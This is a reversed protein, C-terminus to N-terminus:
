KGVQKLIQPVLAQRATFYLAELQSRTIASIPAYGDADGASILQVRYGAPRAAPIFRSGMAKPASLWNGRADIVSHLVVSHQHNKNLRLEIARSDQDGLDLLLQGISDVQWGNDIYCVRVDHFGDLPYDVAVVAEIGDRLYHWSHSHLGITQLMSLNGTMSNIRHWGALNEPMVLDLEQDVNFAVGSRGTRNLHWGFCALGVVALLVSAYKFGFVPRGPLSTTPPVPQKVKRVVHSRSLFFFAMLQDLSLVLGFYGLLLVLGFIEHPLGSLLDLDWFYYASACTTIRFINGLIVFMSTAPLSILLWAMPRRRWLLWFLCFANCLVFSNIGSCAEEMFLEKGPLQITNGDQVLTVRLWDLLKCSYDTAFVRLSLTLKEDLGLPPPLIALLILGGPTLAKLLTKGGMSWFVASLGLLLSMFGLWPSWLLNAAVFLLFAALALSKSILPSGPVLILETEIIGRWFLMAAGLLAFPFFQYAPREWSLMFFSFLLPLIGAMALALAVWNERLRAGLISAYNQEKIVAM